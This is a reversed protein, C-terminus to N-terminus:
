IGQMGGAESARTYLTKLELTKIYNQLRKTLTSILHIIHTLAHTHPSHTHTNRKQEVAVSVHRICIFIITRQAITHANGVGSLDLSESRTRYCHQPDDISFRCSCSSGSASNSSSPELMMLLTIVAASSM